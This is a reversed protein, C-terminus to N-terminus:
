NNEGELLELAAESHVIAITAHVFVESLAWPLSLPYILSVGTPVSRFVSQHTSPELIVAKGNM